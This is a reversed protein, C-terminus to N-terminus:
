MSSFAIDPKCTHCTITCLDDEDGIKRMTTHANRENRKAGKCLKEQNKIKTREAVFDVFSSVVQSM